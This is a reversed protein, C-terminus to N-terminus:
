GDGEDEGNLPDLAEEAEALLNNRATFHRPLYKRITKSSIPPVEDSM